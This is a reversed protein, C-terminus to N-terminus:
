TSCLRRVNSTRNTYAFLKTHLHMFHIRMWKREHHDNRFHIHRGTPTGITPKHQDGLVTATPNAMGSVTPAPQEMPVQRSGHYADRSLVAYRVHVRAIM